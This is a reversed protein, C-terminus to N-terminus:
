SIEKILYRFEDINALKKIKLSASWGTMGVEKAADKISAGDVCIRKLIFATKPDIDDKVKKLILELDINGTYGDRYFLSDSESISSQFDLNESEDDKNKISSFVIEERSKRFINKTKKRCYSCATEDNDKINAYDITVKDGCDCFGFDSDISLSADNSLKNHHKIMSIVKNRIHIHLFTSLRVNKDPNYSDIGEMALITVEQKIDDFTYGQIYIKSSISRILPDIKKLVKDYGKKTKTSIFFTDGYMQVNGEFMEIKRKEGLIKAFLDIIV